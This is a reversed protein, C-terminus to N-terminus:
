SSIEGRLNTQMKTKVKEADNYKGTLYMLKTIASETTMDKGSIIGIKELESSNEYKGQQVSGKYCQSCNIIIKNKNIYKHLLKLLNKNSPLNGSGYSEIIIGKSNELIYEVINYNINPYFRILSVQPNLDNFITFYENREIKAFDNNYKINIGIEALPNLHPSDFAMFHESNIKISRNGRILKNEFYICVEKIKEEIAIEISTILNEKADTRRAGIPIQSGTLIIPKTLGEFIFSLASATYSMTDTGHLIVFGNYINYNKFIINSIEKWSDINVDSSDIPVKVSIKDINVDFNNLEPFYNMMSEFQFPVLVGNKEKHMGITGGTYILLINKM